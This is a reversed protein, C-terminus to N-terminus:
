PNRIGLQFKNQNIRTLSLTVGCHFPLYHPDSFPPSLFSLPSLPPDSFPPSWLSLPSLTPWQCPSEVIVLSIIHTVSIPVGCHCSLYHADKVPPAGCHCPLYDPDSIPPSRLSLPSLPPWQFPSEVIVIFKRKPMYIFDLFIQTRHFTSRIIFLTILIEM